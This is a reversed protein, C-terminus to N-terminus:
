RHTMLPGFPLIALAVITVAGAMLLFVVLKPKRQVSKQIAKAREESGFSSPASDYSERIEGILVGLATWLIGAIILLVVSMGLVYWRTPLVTGVVVSAYISIATSFTAGGLVSFYVPKTSCLLRRIM